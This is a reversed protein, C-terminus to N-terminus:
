EAEPIEVGTAERILQLVTDADNDTGFKAALEGLSEVAYTFQKLPYNLLMMRTAQQDYKQGLEALSKAPQIGEAHSVSSSPTDPAEPVETNLLAAAEADPDPIELEEEFKALLDDLEDDKFGAADLLDANSLEELLALLAEDDYGAGDSTKNDVALIALAQAETCRVFTAEIHTSGLKDRMVRHTHNGKLIYGTDEHVVITAFQGHERLSKEIAATNGRRANKPHTHVSNIEVRETRTITAQEM